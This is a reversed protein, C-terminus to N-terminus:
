KEQQCPICEYEFGGDIPTAVWTGALHNSDNLYGSMTENDFDMVGTLSSEYDTNINKVKYSLIKDGCVEFDLIDFKYTGKDGTIPDYPYWGKDNDFDRYHHYTALQSGPVTAVHHWTGYPKISPYVDGHALHAPLANVSVTIMVWGGNGKGNTRHCITVKEGGGKGGKKAIIEDPNSQKALSTHQIDTPEM